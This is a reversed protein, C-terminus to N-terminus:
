GLAQEFNLVLQGDARHADDARGITLARYKKNGIWRRMIWRGDADGKWIQYGLHVKGPIIAQWHPQRGRKLRSRVTRNQLKAHQVNGAM